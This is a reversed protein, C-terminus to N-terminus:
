KIVMMSDNVYSLELDYTSSHELFSLVHCARIINTCVIDPLPGLALTPLGM